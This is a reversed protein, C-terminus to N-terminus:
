SIDRPGCRDLSARELSAPWIRRIEWGRVRWGRLRETAILLERNPVRRDRYVTSSWATDYGVYNSLKSRKNELIETRRVQQQQPGKKLKLRESRRPWLFQFFSFFFFSLSFSFSFSVFRSERQLFNRKDDYQKGQFNAPRIGNPLHLLFDLSRDINSLALFWPRVNMSFVDSVYISFNPLSQVHFLAILDILFQHFMILSQLKFM